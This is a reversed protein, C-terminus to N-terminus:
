SSWNLQSPSFSARAAMNAFPQVMLRLAPRFSTASARSRSESAPARVHFRLIAEEATESIRCVRITTEGRSTFKIANGVLNTLVQSLRGADGVLLLPIDGEIFSSLAVNKSQAQEAFMQIVNEVTTGLDFDVEEFTIKGASIKSFDLIDNVIKLLTDASASAIETMERQETRLRTDALLRTIGIIGNLPTRIEHSM